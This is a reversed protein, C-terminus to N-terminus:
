IILLFNDQELYLNIKEKSSKIKFRNQKIKKYSIYLGGNLKALDYYM